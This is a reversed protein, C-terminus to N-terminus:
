GRDAGGGAARAVLHVPGLLILALALQAAWWTGRGVIAMWASLTNSTRASDYDAHSTASSELVALALVLKRRLLGHPRALRAYSDALACGIGSRRAMAVLWRDLRDAPVAVASPHAELYAATAAAAPSRTGLYRALRAFEGPLTPDAGPASPLVDTLFETWPRPQPLLQMALPHPEAVSDNLFSALQGATAPLRSGLLPEVAALLVRIPGLPVSWPHRAPLGRAARMGALLERLTAQEGGGVEITSDAEPVTFALALLLQVLDDVHIPQLRVRGTGPVVPLVGTALRELGAQVPSGAGFVMTPRVITAPIGAQRVLAEAERKAKAYHYWRQNRFGVAISSVFILHAARAAKAVELLRRTGEVNVARMVPGPLRGTAAALHLVVAGHPVAAADLPATGDLNWPVIRWHPPLPGMADLSSPQRVLLTVPGRAGPPESRLAHILRRGVFGGAGTVVLPPLPNVM